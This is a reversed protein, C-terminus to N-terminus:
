GHGRQESRVPRQERSSGDSSPPPHPLPLSAFSYFCERFSFFPFPLSSSEYLPPHHTPFMLSTAEDNRHTHCDHIRERRWDQKFESRQGPIVTYQFVYRGSTTSSPHSTAPMPTWCLTTIQTGPYLLSPQWQLARKILTYRNKRKKREGDEKRVSGAM